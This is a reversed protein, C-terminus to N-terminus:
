FSAETYTPADCRVYDITASKDLNTLELFGQLHSMERKFEEEGLAAHVCTENVYIHYLTDHNTM